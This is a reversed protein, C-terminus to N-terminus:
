KATKTRTPLAFGIGAKLEMTKFNTTVAEVSLMFGKLHFALGLAADAGLYTREPLSRWSGDAVELTQAFYGFGVGIHIAVPRAVRVVTGAMISIRSVKSVGTLNYYKNKEFPQFAGKFMFNSMCSVYWGAVRMQGVKFGASWFPTLGYSGNLTFFTRKEFSRPNNKGQAPQVTGTAQPIIIYQRKQREEIRGFDISAINSNSFSIRLTTLSQWAELLDEKIEGEEDEYQQRTKRLDKVDIFISTEFTGSEMEKTEIKLLFTKDGEVQLGPISSTIAICAQGEVLHFKNNNTEPKVTFKVEPETILFYHKEGSRFIFKNGTEGYFTTGKKDVRFKRVNYMENEGLDLTVVYEYQGPNIERPAAVKDYKTFSTIILDNTSAVFVVQATNAPMKDRTMKETQESIVLFNQASVFLPLVISLLTTLIKAKSM